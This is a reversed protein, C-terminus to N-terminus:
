NQRLAVTPQVTAARSAAFGAALSAIGIVVAAAGAFTIGDLAGV